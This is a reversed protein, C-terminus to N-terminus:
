VEDESSAVDASVTSPATEALNRVVDVSEGHLRPRLAHKVTLHDDARLCMRAHKVTLHDDARLCMRARAHLRSRSSATRLLHALTTFLLEARRETEGCVETLHLMGTPRAGSM